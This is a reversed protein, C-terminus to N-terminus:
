YWFQSNMKRAIFVGPGFTDCAAACTPLMPALMTHATRLREVSPREPLKVQMSLWKDSTVTITMQVLPEGMITPPLEDVQAQAVRVLDQGDKQFLDLGIATQCNAAVSFTDRFETPLPTGAPILATFAGEATPIGIPLELTKAM